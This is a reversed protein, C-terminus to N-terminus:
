TRSSTSAAHLDGAITTTGFQDTRKPVQAVLRPPLGARMDLHGSSTASFVMDRNGIMVRELDTQEVTQEFIDGGM